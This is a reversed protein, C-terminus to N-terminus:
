RQHRRGTAKELKIPKQLERQAADMDKTSKWQEMSAAIPFLEQIEEALHPYRKKYVEVKPMTGTRLEALFQTLLIELLDRSQTEDVPSQDPVGYVKIEYAEVAESM